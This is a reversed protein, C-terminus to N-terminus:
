RCGRVQAFTPRCAGMDVVGAGPGPEQGLLHLVLEAVGIIFERTNKPIVPGTLCKSKFSLANLPGSAPRTWTRTRTCRSRSTSTSVSPTTPSWSPRRSSTTSTRATADPLDEVRPNLKEPHCNYYAAQKFPGVGQDGGQMVTVDYDDIKDYEAIAATTELGRLDVKFGIAELNQQMVPTWTTVGAFTNDFIIRLPKSQDWSSKALHAKAKDVNFEFFEMGDAAPMGPNVGKNLTGSGGYINAIIGPADIAYSVAKRCELDCKSLLNFQPGFTSVGTTSLVDLTSVKELRTKDAPNLRVSLDLDGAEGAAVAADGKM